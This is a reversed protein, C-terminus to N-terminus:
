FNHRTRCFFYFIYIKWPSLGISLLLTGSGLFDLSILLDNKIGIHKSLYDFLFPGVAFELAVLSWSTVAM